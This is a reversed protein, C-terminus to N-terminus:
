APVAGIVPLRSQLAGPLQVVVAKRIPTWFASLCLLASGIM